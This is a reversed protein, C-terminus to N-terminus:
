KTFFKAYALDEEVNIDIAERANVFYIRPYEGIRCRYRNLVDKKIGYLGTTEEVLPELDQSRPLVGPRYNAPNNGLWFFGNRKIGTFISDYRNSGMLIDVCNKITESTLFPATAFLQFYYDYDPYKELHYVLLDNGNAINEALEPKRDIIKVLENEKYKEKIEKSDTDIYITDFCNAKLANEIIYEYLKKNGLIRFNKGKVRESKEKIPIFAAVKM